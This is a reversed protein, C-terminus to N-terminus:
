RDKRWEYDCKWFEKIFRNTESIGHFICSIPYFVITFVSMLKSFLLICDHWIINVNAQDKKVICEQRLTAEEMRKILQETEKLYEM